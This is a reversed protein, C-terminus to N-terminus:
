LAQIHQAQLGGVRIVSATQQAVVTESKITNVIARVEEFANSVTTWAGTQSLVPALFRAKIERHGLLYTRGNRLIGVLHLEDVTLSEAAAEALNDATVMLDVISAILHSIGNKQDRTMARTVNAAGSGISCFSTRRGFHTFLSPAYQQIAAEVGGSPTIAVIEIMKRSEPVLEDALFQEVFRILGHADLNANEHLHQFLRDIIAVSGACGVLYDEGAYLKQAGHVEETLTSAQSDSYIVAASSNPLSVAIHVTM